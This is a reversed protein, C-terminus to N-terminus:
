IYGSSNHLDMHLPMRSWFSISAAPNIWRPFTFGTFSSSSLSDILSESLNCLSSSQDAARPSSTKHWFECPLSPFLFQFVELLRSRVGLHGRSRQYFVIFCGIPTRHPSMFLCSSTLAFYRDHNTVFSTLRGDLGSNYAAVGGSSRRRMVTRDTISRAALPESCIFNMTRSTDGAYKNERWRNARYVHLNDIFIELWSIFVHTPTEIRGHIPCAVCCQIPALLVGFM